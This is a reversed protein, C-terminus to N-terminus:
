RHRYEQRGPISPRKGQRRPDGTGRLASMKKLRDPTRGAGSPAQGPPSCGPGAIALCLGALRAIAARRTMSRWREHGM